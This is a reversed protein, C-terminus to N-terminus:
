CGWEPFGCAAVLDELLWLVAAETGSVTAAMWPCGGVGQSHGSFHENSFTFNYCPAGWCAVGLPQSRWALDSWPPKWQMPSPGMVQTALCLTM